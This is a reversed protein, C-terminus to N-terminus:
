RRISPIGFIYQIFLIKILVVPDISPRGHDESYKDKVLDYIFSFDIVREIKRLLHDKPVLQDISVFEIQHRADQKKSLM